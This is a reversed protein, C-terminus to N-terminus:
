SVPSTTFRWQCAAALTAKAKIPEKAQHPTEVVTDAGKWVIRSKGVHDAGVPEGDRKGSVMVWTGELRKLDAAPDAPKAQALALGCALAFSLPLLHHIRM